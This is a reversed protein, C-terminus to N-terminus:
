IEEACFEVLNEKFEEFSTSKILRAIKAPNDLIPILQEFFTDLLKREEKKIAFMFILQVKNKGWMVPKKLIGVAVATGYADMTVSHPIAVLNGFSTPSLKEREMVREAYNEPVYGKEYLKFALFDIVEKEDGFTLGSFFLEKKIFMGLIAWTGCRLAKKNEVALIKEFAERDREDFFPSIRIVKAPYDLEIPVTSIIYDPSNEKLLDLETFSYAGIIELQDKYYKELKSILIKSATHGAPCVVAVIKKKKERQFLREFAAGFHFALFGIEDEDINLGSLRSFERAFFVSIEFIMPYRRKIEEVFCNKIRAGKKARERVMKIHMCLGVVLIDDERFNFGFEM